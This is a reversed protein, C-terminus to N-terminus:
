HLTHHSVRNGRIGGEHRGHGAQEQAIALAIETQLWAEFRSADSFTARMSPTSFINNFYTNTFSHM